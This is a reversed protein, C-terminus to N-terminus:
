KVSFYNGLGSNLQFVWPTDHGPFNLSVEAKDFSWELEKKSPVYWCIPAISHEQQEDKYTCTIELKSYKCQFLPIMGLFLYRSTPKIELESPGGNTSIAIKIPIDSDFYLGEVIGGNWRSIELSKQNFIPVSYLFRIMNVPIIKNITQHVASLWNVGKFYDSHLILTPYDGPSWKNLNYKFGSPGSSLLLMGLGSIHGKHPCYPDSCSCKAPSRRVVKPLTDNLHQERKKVENVDQYYVEKDCEPYNRYVWEAFKPKIINHWKESFEKPDIPDCFFDRVFSNSIEQETCQSHRPFKMILTKEKEFYQICDSKM